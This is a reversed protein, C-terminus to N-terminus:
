MPSVQMNGTRLNYKFFSRLSSIKRNLSKSSMGNEKLGALWGRIFGHNLHELSINGYQRSIYTDFDKLDTEYSIITHLSYRKEFKLYDLFSQIDPSFLSLM